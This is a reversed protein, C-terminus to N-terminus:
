EKESLTRTYNFSYISSSFSFYIRVEKLLHKPYSNLNYVSKPIERLQDTLKLYKLVKFLSKLANDSVFAGETIRWIGFLLTAENPYPYTKM